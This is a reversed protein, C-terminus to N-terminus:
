FVFSTSIKRSGPLDPKTKRRSYGSLANPTPDVMDNKVTGRRGSTVNAATLSNAVSIVSVSSKRRSSHRKESHSGFAAKPHSIEVVEDSFQARTFRNKRSMDLMTEQAPTLSEYISQPSHLSGLMEQFMDSQKFRVFNEDDMGKLIEYRATLFIDRDVMESVLEEEIDQITSHSLHVPMPANEALFKLYIVLAREHIRDESIDAEWKFDEISEFLSIEAARRRGVCDAAWLKHAEYHQMIHEPRAKERLCKICFESYVEPLSSFFEYFTDLTLKLVLCHEVCRAKIPSASDFLLAEQGFYGGPLVRVTEQKILHKEEQGDDDPENLVLDIEYDVAVEGRLLIYFAPCKEDKEIIIQGTQKEILESISSLEQLKLSPIANLFACGQKILTDLFHLRVHELLVISAEPVVKLFNCFATRDIFVLLSNDVATISAIRPIKFLLAIEGFYAGSGLKTLAQIKRDARVLDKVATRSPRKPENDHVFCRAAASLNTKVTAQLSGRICIYFRDGIEGEKCLVDGRKVYMYSCLNSLTVLRSEEVNELFPIDVLYNVVESDIISNIMHIKEAGTMSYGRQMGRKEDSSFRATAKTNPTRSAYKMRLRLFRERNLKLLTCGVYPDATTRNLDLLKMLNKRAVKNDGRDDELLRCILQERAAYSIYDGVKRQCLVETVHQKNNTPILSSIDVSGEAVIFFLRSDNRIVAGKPYKVVQFCEAVDDFLREDMMQKFPTKKLVDIINKKVAGTPGPHQVVSSIGSGM